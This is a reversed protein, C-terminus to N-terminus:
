ILLDPVRRVKPLGAGPEHERLRPLDLVEVVVHLHPVPDPQGLGSPNVRPFGRTHHRYEVDVVNEAARETRAVADGAWGVDCRAVRGGGPAHARSQLFTDRDRADIDRRPM